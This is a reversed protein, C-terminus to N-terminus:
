SGRTDGHVTVSAPLVALPRERGAARGGARLGGRPRLAGPGPSPDGDRHCGRPQRVDRGDPRALVEAVGPALAYRRTLADDGSEVTLYGNVAMQELWERAYREATATRAALEASTHPGTALTRYYGLRDGLYAAQVLQAGLVAGFLREGFEEATATTSTDAITM